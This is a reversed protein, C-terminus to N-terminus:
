FDAIIQEHNRDDEDPLADRVSAAFYLLIPGCLVVFFLIACLMLLIRVVKRNREATETDVFVEM